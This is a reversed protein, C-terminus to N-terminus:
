ALRSVRFNRICQEYFDVIPPVLQRTTFSELIRRQGAQGLRAALDKDSLVAILAQAIEEPRDPDVLWGDQDHRILEPGSARETYITPCGYFMAEIPSVSFAETYSPFVAARATRLAAVLAPRPAHGHFYVSGRASEQVYREILVESAPRGDQMGYKGFLHLEALPHKERVRGWARLLSFIGKKATITGTFVVKMEPRHCALQLGSLDSHDTDISTPYLVSDIRKLGFLEKTKDAAYRSVASSYDSRWFSARELWYAVPLPRKGQEVAFYSISGHIRTVVPVPLRPWGAAPGAGDPVEILDIEGDHCWRAITRYLLLRSRISAYDPSPRRLRAVSVGEDCERDPGSYHQPYVGVVRARHGANVLARALVQCGKGIGGYIAPPYEHCVYCINLQGLRTRRNSGAPLNWGASLRKTGRLATRHLTAM